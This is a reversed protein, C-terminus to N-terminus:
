IGPNTERLRREAAIIFHVLIKITIAIGVQIVRIKFLTIITIDDITIPTVGVTRDRPTTISDHVFIKVVIPYWVKIVWKKLKTVNTRNIPPITEFIARNVSTTILDNMKGAKYNDQRTKARDRRPKARGQRQAARSEGKMAKAM